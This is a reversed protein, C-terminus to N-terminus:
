CRAEEAAASRTGAADARESEADDTPPTEPTAAAAGDVVRCEADADAKACTLSNQIPNALQSVTAKPLHTAYHLFECLQFRLEPVM